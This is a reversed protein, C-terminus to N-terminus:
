GRAGVNGAILNQPDRVCDCKASEENKDLKVNRELAKRRIRRYRKLKRQKM